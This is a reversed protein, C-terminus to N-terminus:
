LTFQYAFGLTAGELWEYSNSTWGIYWNWNRDTFKSSLLLEVGINHHPHSDNYPQYDSRTIYSFGVYLQSTKKFARFSVGGTFNWQNIMPKEHREINSKVTGYIGWADSFEYNAIIGLPHWVNAIWGIRTNPKEYTTTTQAFSVISFLMVILMLFMVLKKM